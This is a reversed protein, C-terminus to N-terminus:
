FTGGGGPPRDPHLTAAALWAALLGDQAAAFQEARGGAALFRGRLEAVIEAQRRAAREDQDAALRDRKAREAADVAAFREARLRDNDRRWGDAEDWAAQRAALDGWPWTAATPRPETATKGIYINNPSLTPATAM